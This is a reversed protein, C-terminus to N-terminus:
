EVRLEQDWGLGWDSAPKAKEVGNPKIATGPALQGVIDVLRNLAAELAAVKGQLEALAEPAKAAKEELAALREELANVKTEQSKETAERPTPEESTEKVVKENDINKKDMNVEKIGLLELLTHVLGKRGGELASRHKELHAMARRRLEEASISDTVPKIQNARALANRLHPLDLNVNRTGGGGPGHHPLHRANKDKTEGRKYAPEIVAFSDDPLRNIYARTWREKAEPVEEGDLMKYYTDFALLEEAKERTLGEDILAKIEVEVEDTSDAMKFALAKVQGLDPVTHSLGEGFLKAIEAMEEPTLGFATVTGTRPDFHIEIDERLPMIKEEFFSGQNMPEDVYSVEALKLKRIVNVGDPRREEEIPYFGISYARLLGAKILERVGPATPRSALKLGDPLIKLWVTEGARLNPRHLLNIPMGAQFFTDLADFWAEAPIYDRGLDVIAKNAYGVVLDEDEHYKAPIEVRLLKDAM